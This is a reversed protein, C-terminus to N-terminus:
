EKEKKSDEDTIESLIKQAKKASIVTLKKVIALAWDILHMGTLGVLFAVGDNLQNYEAELVRSALHSLPDTLYAAMLTGSFIYSFALWFNMKQKSRLLMVTGGAAGALAANLKMNLFFM